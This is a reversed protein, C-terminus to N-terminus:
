RRKDAQGFRGQAVIAVDDALGSPATMRAIWAQRQMQIVQRHLQRRPKVGLVIEAQGHVDDRRLQVQAIDVQGDAWGPYHWAAM